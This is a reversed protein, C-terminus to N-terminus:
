GKDVTKVTLLDNHNNYFKTLLLNVYQSLTMDARNARLQLYNKVRADLIASLVVPYEVKKPRGGTKKRQKKEKM